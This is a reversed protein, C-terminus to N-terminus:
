SGYRSLREAYIEDRTWGREGSESPADHAHRGHEERIGRLMRLASERARQYREDAETLANIQQAVLASVSTGRRAALAKARRIVDEDLQVTLNRSVVV